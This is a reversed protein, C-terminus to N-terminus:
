GARSSRDKSQAIRDQPLSDAAKIATEFHPLAAKMGSAAFVENAKAMAEEAATSGGATSAAPAASRPKLEGEWAPLGKEKRATEMQRYTSLIKRQFDENVQLDPRLSLASILDKEGEAIQKDDGTLIKTLGLEARSLAPDLYREYEQWKEAHLRVVVDTLVAKRGQTLGPQTMVEIIGITQDHGEVIRNHAQKTDTRDSLDVARELWRVSDRLDLASRPLPTEVPAEQQALEVPMVPPRQNQGDQAFDLPTDEAAPPSDPNKADNNVPPNPAPLQDVEGAQALLTADPSDSFEEPLLLVDAQSPKNINITREVGSPASGWIQQSARLWGADDGQDAALDDGGSEVEFPQFNYINNQPQHPSAPKDHPAALDFLDVM